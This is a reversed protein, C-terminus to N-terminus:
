LVHHDEQPSHYGALEELRSVADLQQPGLPTGQGVTWLLFEIENLNARARIAPATAMMARRMLACLEQCKQLHSKIM